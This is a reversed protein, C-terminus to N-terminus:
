CVDHALWGIVEGQGDVVREHQYCGGAIPGDHRATFMVRGEGASRARDAPVPEFRDIEGGVVPAVCRFWAGEGNRTRMGIKGRNMPWADTVRPTPGPTVELCARIAPLLDTLLRSWDGVPRMSLEALAM